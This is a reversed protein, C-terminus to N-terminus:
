LRDGHVGAAAPVSEGSGGCPHFATFFAAPSGDTQDSQEKEDFVEKSGKILIRLLNANLIIVADM